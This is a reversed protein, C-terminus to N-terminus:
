IHKIPDVVKIMTRDVRNLTQFISCTSDIQVDPYLLPYVEKVCVQESYPNTKIRAAEQVCREFFTICFDREGVWVGANLYRFPPIGVRTEFDFSSHDHPWHLIEANFLMKCRLKDVARDPNRFIVVDSSDCCMVYKSKGARLYDLILPLKMRNTWNAIGRGLVEVSVGLKVCSEEFCGLKKTKYHYIKDNVVSSNCTIISLDATSTIKNASLKSLDGWLPCFKEDGQAHVLIPRTQYLTNIIM